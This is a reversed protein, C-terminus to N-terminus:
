NKVKRNSYNIDYISYLIGMNFVIKLKYIIDHTIITHSTLM